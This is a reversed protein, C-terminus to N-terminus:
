HLLHSPLCPAALLPSRAPRPSARRTCSCPPAPRAAPLFSLVASLSEPCSLPSSWLHFLSGPRLRRSPPGFNLLM